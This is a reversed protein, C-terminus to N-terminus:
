YSSRGGGYVNVRIQDATFSGDAASRGNAMIRDGVKLDGIKETVTRTVKLDSAAKLTVSIDPSVAVTLPSLSTIKGTAQAIAAPGGPWLGRGGSPQAGLANVREDLSNRPLGDSGESDTIQSATMGTPVGRVQISEGVVLDAVKAATQATIKTAPTVKITQMTQGQAFLPTLTVTGAAADVAQVTGAAFPLRRRLNPTNPTAPRGGPAPGPPNDGEEVQAWAATGLMVAAAAAMMLLSNRKMESGGTM